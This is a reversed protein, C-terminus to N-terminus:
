QSDSSSSSSSDTSMVEVDELSQEKMKHDPPLTLSSIGPSMDPNWQFQSPAAGPGNMRNLDMQVPPGAQQQLSQQPTQQQPHQQQQMVAATQMQQQQMVTNATAPPPHLMADSFGQGLFGSRMEIDTPYPRRPDGVEWNYPAAVAHSASIRHAYRILDESSVSKDQARRIHALKQKAQYIAGALTQEASRLSQQLLSIEADQKGIESRLSDMKKQIEEQEGAQKMYYKLEKDKAVLLEAIQAHTHDWNTGQRQPRPILMM